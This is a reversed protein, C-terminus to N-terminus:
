MWRQPYIRHVIRSNPFENRFELRRWSEHDFDRRAFFKCLGISANKFHQWIRKKPSIKEEIAVALKLNSDLNKLSPEHYQIMSYPTTM